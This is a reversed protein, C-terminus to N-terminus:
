KFGTPNNDTFVLYAFGIVFPAAVALALWDQWTDGPGSLYSMM